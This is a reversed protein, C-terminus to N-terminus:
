QLDRLLRAMEIAGVASMVPEGSAMGARAIGKSAGACVYDFHPTAGRILAGVCIVADIDERSALVKALLPNRLGRAGM